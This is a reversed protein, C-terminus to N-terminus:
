VLHQRGAAARELTVEEIREAGEGGGLGMWGMGDGGFAM